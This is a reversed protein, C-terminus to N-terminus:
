PVEARTPALEYPQPDKRRPMNIFRELSAGRKVKQALMLMSHLLDYENVVAKNLVPVANSVLM